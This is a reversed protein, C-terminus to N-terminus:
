QIKSGLKKDILFIQNEEKVYRKLFRVFMSYSRIGIVQKVLKFCFNFLKLKRDFAPVNKNTVKDAISKSFDILNKQKLLAYFSKDGTSFPYQYVEGEQLIRRYLRRQINLINVGNDFQNYSYLNSTYKEFDSSILAETYIDFLPNLDTYNKFDDKKHSISNKIFSKYDYGSFHVFLLLTPKTGNLNNRDSVFYHEGIKSVEREFYNWPALNMGSNKSINLVPFSFFSPLLNIWKQDTITGRDNDAFCDNQLRNHWWQLFKETEPSKKLGLFGLNFTGNLLFLHDPYDGVFPTQMTLIHPTLLISSNELESFIPDLSNYVYIDPDFYIIKEYKDKDFFYQFCAPKISTCFEVLDYKFAMQELLSDEIELKEKAFLINDALSYKNKEVDNMEDAVFVFFDCNANQRVSKELVEALGIYNKAVITFVCNM